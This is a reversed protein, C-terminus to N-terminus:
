CGMPGTDPPHRGRHTVIWAYLAVNCLLAFTGLAIEIPRTLGAPHIAATLYHAIFGGAYEAHGGRTRLANELPTLPCILGAYEVVIGWAAAPLHAWAVKPWRVVLFAGLLVFALFAAHCLLVLVALWHYIVHRRLL